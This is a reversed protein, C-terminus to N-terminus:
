QTAALELKLEFRISGPINFLRYETACAELNRKVIYLGLGVGGTDRSRSADPRYFPEFLKPIISEELPEAENEVFLLVHRGRCEAGIRVSGGPKTYRVANSVINSLAKALRDPSGLVAPLPGEVALSVKGAEALREYPPLLGDLLPQLAITERNGQLDPHELRSLELVEQVLRSLGGLLKRSERLYKDRDAYIGVRDMMGEIMGSVAAIPTKLEHTVAMTLERKMRELERVREMEVQLRRNADTLQDITTTLSDYLRNLSAALAGIEGPTDTRARAGAEMRSMIEAQASLELIPRTLRRAYIIAAAGSLLVVAALLYPAFGLMVRTAEDIPQLPATVIMDLRETGVRLEKRITLFGPSATEGEGVPVLEPERRLTQPVPLPLQGPFETIVDSPTYVAKGSGDLLLVGANNSLSFRNLEKERGAEDLQPLRQALRDAQRALEAKKAHYYFAPMGTYLFALMGGTVLALVLLTYVFTRFTIGPRRMM